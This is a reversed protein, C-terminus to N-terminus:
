ADQIATEPSGTIATMMSAAAGVSTAGTIM